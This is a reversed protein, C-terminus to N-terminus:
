ENTVGTTYEIIVGQRELLSKLADYEDSGRDTIGLSEMLLHDKLQVEGRVFAVAATTGAEETTFVERCAYKDGFVVALDVDQIDEDFLDSATAVAYPAEQSATASRFVVTGMPIDTSTNSLNIVRRSYGVSPDVEHFVLKSLADQPISIATAM